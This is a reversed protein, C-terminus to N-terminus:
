KGYYTAIEEATANRVGRRTLWKDEAEKKIINYGKSLQGLGSWRINSDSWLAVKEDEDKEKSETDVKKTLAHDAAKSKISNNEDAKLNSSRVTKPKQPGTIVKSDQDIVSEEIKVSESIIPTSEAVSKSTTKKAAAKKKTPVPRDTTAAEIKEESM